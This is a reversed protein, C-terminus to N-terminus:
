EYNLTLSEVSMALCDEPENDNKKGVVWEHVAVQDLTDRREPRPDLMRGILNGVCGVDGEFLFDPVEDGGHLGDAHDDCWSEFRSFRQCTRLDSGFPLSGFVMAHLIVGSSYVDAPPGLYEGSAVEPAVYHPSGVISSLRKLGPPPPPANLMMPPASLMPTILPSCGTVPPPSSPGFPPTPPLRAISIAGSVSRPPSSAAGQAHRHQSDDFDFAPPNPGTSEPQSSQSSAPGAMGSAQDDRIDASLGFDAIKLVRKGTTQDVHMLLNEPKLDRHIIGREHCYRLGEILERFHSRCDIGADPQIWDFLEGETCLELVLFVTSKSDGFMELADVLRLVNPHSPLPLMSTIERLSSRRARLYRVYKAPVPPVFVRKNLRESWVASGRGRIAEGLGGSGRDELADCLDDFERSSIGLPSLGYISVCVSLPLERLKYGDEPDEYCALLPLNALADPDSPEKLKAANPNVTYWVHRDSLAEGPAARDGKKVAIFTSIVSRPLLRYGVPNLIKVAVPSNDPLSSSSYVM